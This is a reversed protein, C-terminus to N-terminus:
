DFLKNAKDAAKNLGTNTQGDILVAVLKLNNGNDFLCVTRIFVM